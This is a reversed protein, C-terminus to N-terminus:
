NPPDVPRLRPAGRGRLPVGAQALARRIASQTRDTLEAIERLSRGGVYQEAAFALLEYRQEATQRTTATGRFRALPELVPRGPYAM